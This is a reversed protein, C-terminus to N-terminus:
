LPTFMECLIMVMIIGAAAFLWAVGAAIFFFLVNSKEQLYPLYLEECEKYKLPTKKYKYINKLLITNKKIRSDIGGGNEQQM